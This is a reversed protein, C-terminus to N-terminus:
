PESTRSRSLSSLRASIEQDTSVPFLVDLGRAVREFSQDADEIAQGFIIPQPHDYRGVRPRPLPDLQLMGGRGAFDHQAFGKPKM